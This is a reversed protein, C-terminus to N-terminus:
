ATQVTVLSRAACGLVRLEIEALHVLIKKNESKDQGTRPKGLRMPLLLDGLPLAASAHLRGSVTM